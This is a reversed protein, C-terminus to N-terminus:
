SLIRTEKNESLYRLLSKVYQYLGGTELLTKDSAEFYTIKDNFKYKFYPSVVIEPQPLFRGHKKNYCTAPKAKVKYEKDVYMAVSKHIATDEKPLYFYDRYNDYFYKLEGEYVPLILTLQNGTIKLKISLVDKNKYNNEGDNSTIGPLPSILAVPQPLTYPLLFELRVTSATREPTSGAPGDYTLNTKEKLSLIDCPEKEFLDRYFLIDAVRSLGTVDELNHLLIVRSLEDSSLQKSNDKEKHSIIHNMGTKPDISESSKNKQLLKEYQLRGLYNAYIQILEEGTYSDERNIGVFKEITKLKYNPLTLLKKFPQIKKYIDFSEIMDFSFNLHHQRCKRLIFPIDFGTGNFHVLRKYTKLTNFFAELICAESNMDDALWQTIQWTNNKYYMCGILYLFSTNASFGTTEIDFFLIDEWAFPNM